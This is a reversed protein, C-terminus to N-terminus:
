KLKGALRVANMVRPVWLARDQVFVTPQTAKETGIVVVLQEAKIGTREQVMLSYICCQMFYGDIWELKKVNTSSKWDIVSVKGKWEALLDMAGALNLIKSYLKIEQAFIKGLCLDVAPKVQRFLPVALGRTKWGEVDQLYDEMQKHFGSGRLSAADRIKIAEVEGGVRETWAALMEKKDSIRGLFTTVSELEAGDPTVYYRGREPDNVQVPEEVTIPEWQFTRQRPLM